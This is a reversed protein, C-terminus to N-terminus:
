HFNHPTLPTYLQGGMYRWTFSMGGHLFNDGERFRKFTHGEKARKSNNEMILTDEYNFTSGNQFLQRLYKELTLFKRNKEIVPTDPQNKARM